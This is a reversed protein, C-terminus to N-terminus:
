THDKTGETKTLTEADGDGPLAPPQHSPCQRPKKGMWEAAKDYWQRAETKNGLQWHAMALFFWDEAHGGFRLENAKELAEIAGKWDGARYRATGLTGWSHGKKPALEVARNALKVARDSDRLRPDECTALLWAVENIGRPDEAAVKEATTLDNRAEEIQGLKARVVARECYALVDTPDLRIAESFDAVARDLEGKGLYAQGRIVHVAAEEPQLRIVEALDAIAQAYDGKLRYLQGRNAFANRNESDLRIAENYDTMAKGFDGMKRRTIGRNNYSVANAPDLRIAENLDALAM